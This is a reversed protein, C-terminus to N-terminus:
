SLWVPQEATTYIQPCWVSSWARHRFGVEWVTWPSPLGVAAGMATDLLNAPRAGSAVLDGPELNLPWQGDNAFITM